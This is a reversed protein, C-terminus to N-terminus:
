IQWIDKIGGKKDIVFKSGKIDNVTLSSGIDKIYNIFTKKIDIGIQILTYDQPYKKDIRLEPFRNEDDKIILTYNKQNFQILPNILQISIM